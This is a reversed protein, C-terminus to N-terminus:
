KDTFQLLVSNKGTSQEASNYVWMAVSFDGQNPNFWNEILMRSNESGQPTFRLVKGYASNGSDEVSINDGQLVAKLEVNTGTNVPNENEDVSEFDWHGSLNSTIDAQDGEAGAASYVCVSSLMTISLIVALLRKARKM